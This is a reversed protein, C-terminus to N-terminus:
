AFPEMAEELSKTEEFLSVIKLIVEDVLSDPCSAGSTISITLPKNQTPLWNETQHMQKDWQSFHKIGQENTFESANRIHYTPLKQELLEVIHLTNSSNYGGIVLAIDAPEERLAITASQNENTAYCLTDTTDAFHSQVDQEGYKEQAAKKLVDMVEQTETALMTTQNIVGFFELDNVPNFGPTAKHGFYHQFVDLGKKGLMCDALIQAEEVNYVVVAKSHTEAHSFTARTEEHQYKGHIVINFGKEGIQKGRKWVKEVFPCTTDYSYPDIGRSELEKQLEVTTGFAPVIVVDDPTLDDLSVRSTGDTEYLFQVGKSLLDANVDPNHIMESLLYIRKDKKEEVTRYAIDIANQVGYCFGFHRPILFRVPGFDLVSPKLDKKRPDLIQAKEKITRIIPSQYFEPVNFKKAM